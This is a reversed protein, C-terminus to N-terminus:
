IISLISLKSFGTICIKYPYITYYFFLKFNFKLLYIIDEQSTIDLIIKINSLHM